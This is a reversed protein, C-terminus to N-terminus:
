SDRANNYQYMRKNDIAAHKQKHLYLRAKSIIVDVTLGIGVGMAFGAFDIWIDVVQSGRQSFIQITEDMVASALGIFLITVLNHRCMKGTLYLLLVMELGLLAFELVHAVKRVIHQAEETDLPPTRFVEEVVELVRKSQGNSVIASQLSNSWIYLLTLAIICICIYWRRRYM